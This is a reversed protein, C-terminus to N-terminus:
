DLIKEILEIFEKILTIIATALVLAKTPDYKGNKNAKKGM